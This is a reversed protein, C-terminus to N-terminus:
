CREKLEYLKKVPPKGAQAPPFTIEMKPHASEPITEDYGIMAFTGAGLGPTGVALICDTTRNRRLIPRQSYFTVELPGGCHIIPADAAKRAMQLPGNLDFVGALVFVTGKAKLRPATMDLSLSLVEAHPDQKLVAQADPRKANDGFLWQKLPAVNVRLNYYTKGGVRLDKIEFDYGDEDSGGKNALIKEGEETLDGNGNRDVHLVNGDKVLWLRGKAEPGLVLLAYRPSRSQYAPARTIRRDIKALDAASGPAALCLALLSPICLHRIM